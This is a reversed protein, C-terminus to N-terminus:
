KLIAAIWFWGLVPHPTTQSEAARAFTSVLALASVISRTIAKM